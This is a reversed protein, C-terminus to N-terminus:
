DDDDVEEEEEEEGAGKEASARAAQLEREAVKQRHELEERLPRHEKADGCGKLGLVCFRAARRWGLVSRLAAYAEALFLFIRPKTVGAKLLSLAEARAHRLDERLDDDSRGRCLRVGMEACAVANAWEQEGGIQTLAASMRLRLRPTVLPALLVPLPEVGSSRARTSPTLAACFPYFFAGEARAAALEELRRQEERVARQCLDVAEAPRGLRLHCAALNSFAQASPVLELSRLYHREAADLRGRRLEADGAHKHLVHNTASLPYAHSLFYARSRLWAVDSTPIQAASHLWSVLAFGRFLRKDPESLLYIPSHGRDPGNLAPRRSLALLRDAMQDVQRRTPPVGGVLQAQAALLHAALQEAQEGPTPESNKDLSWTIDAAHAYRCHMQGTPYGGEPGAEKNGNPPPGDLSGRLREVMEENKGDDTADALAAAQAPSYLEALAAGCAAGKLAIEAYAAEYHARDAAEAAADDKLVAFEKQLRLAMAALVIEAVHGESLRASIPPGSGSAAASAAVSRSSRVETGSVSVASDPFFLPRCSNRRALKEASEKARNLRTGDAGRALLLQAVEAHDGRVALMLATDGDFNAKDAEIGQEALLREVCREHGAKAAVMLPTEGNRNGQDKDAGRELLLNAAPLNGLSCALLLATMGNRAKANKDAGQKLLEVAVQLRGDRVAYMLATWGADDARNYDAGPPFMKAVLVDAPVNKSSPKLLARVSVHKALDVARVSPGDPPPPAAAEAWFLFSATEMDGALVAQLLAPPAPLAPLLTVGRLTLPPLLPTRREHQDRAAEVAAARVRSFEVDPRFAFRLDASAALLVRVMERHGEAAAAMLPTWGLTRPPGGARRWGNLLAPHPLQPLARSNVDAGAALLAEACQRHGHLCALFLPTCGVTDRSDVLAKAQLLLQLQPLCGAAAAAALPTRGDVGEAEVEGRGAALLLALCETQGCKAAYHLPTYGRACGRSTSAGRELLFSLMAHQGASAALILATYGSGEEREELDCGVLLATRMWKVKGLQAAYRLQAGTPVEGPAVLLLALQAAKSRAAAAAAVDAASAAPRDQAALPTHSNLEEVVEPFGAREAKDRATKGANSRAATSAGRDLLAKVLPLAGRSAALILPTHGYQRARSAPLTAQVARARVANRAELAAGNDLLLAACDLSAADCAAHLPTNGTPALRPGLARSLANSAKGWVSPLAETVADFAAAHLSPFLGRPGGGRGGEVDAGHTLLLRAAEAHAGRCAYVLPTYGFQAPTLRSSPRRARASVSCKSELAAGHDLLLTLLATDGRSAALHLPTYGDQM